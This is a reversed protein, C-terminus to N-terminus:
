LWIRGMYLQQLLMWVSIRDCHQNKVPRTNAASIIPFLGATHKISFHTYLPILGLVFMGWGFLCMSSNVWSTKIAPKRAFSLCSTLSSFHAGCSSSCFSFSAWSRPPEENMTSPSCPEKGFFCQRRIWLLTWTLHGRMITFCQFTRQTTKKKSATWVAEGRSPCREVCSCQQRDRCCRSPWAIHSLWSSSLSSSHWSPDLSSSTRM